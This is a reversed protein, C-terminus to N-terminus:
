RAARCAAPASRSRPARCPGLTARTGVAAIGPRESDYRVPEPRRGASARGARRDLQFDLVQGGLRRANRPSRMIRFTGPLASAPPRANTKTKRGPAAAAGAAPWSAPPDHGDLAPLEGSRQRREAALDHDVPAHRERGRRHAVQSPTGGHRRRRPFAQAIRRFRRRSAHLVRNGGRHPREVVRAHVPHVLVAEVQVDPRRRCRLVSGGDQDPDVAAAQGDAVAGVDGVVPRPQRLPAHHQHGDVVPEPREAIEGVRQQAPFGLM